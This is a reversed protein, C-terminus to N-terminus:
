WCNVPSRNFSQDISMVKCKEDNKQSGTAKAVVMYTSSTVNTVSFTYYDSHSLSLESATAYHQHDFRYAEQLLHMQLLNTKAIGRRSSQIQANYAPVAISMLIGAIVVAIMAEILSFGIQKHQYVANVQSPLSLAKEMTSGRCRAEVLFKSAWQLRQGAM